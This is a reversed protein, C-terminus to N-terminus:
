RCNSVMIGRKRSVQSTGATAMMMAIVGTFMAMQMQITNMGHIM